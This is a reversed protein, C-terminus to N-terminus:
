LNVDEAIKAGLAGDLYRHDITFYLTIFQNEKLKMDTPDIDM